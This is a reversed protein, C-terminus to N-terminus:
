DWDRPAVGYRRKFAKSFVFADSYGCAAAVSQVHHEGSSLLEAAHQLRRRELYAAPSEGAGRQFVRSLSSRNLGCAVAVDAVKIGQSFHQDIWRRATQTHRTAADDGTHRNRGTAAISPLAGCLRSASDAAHPGGLAAVACAQRLVNELVAATSVPWCGCHPALAQECDAIFRPGTAVVLHMEVEHDIHVRHRDGPHLLLVRGPAISSRGHADQVWGRGATVLAFFCRTMVHRELTCPAWREHAARICAVPDELEPVLPYQQRYAIAPSPM